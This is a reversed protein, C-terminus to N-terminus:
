GGFVGNLVIGLAVIQPVAVLPIFLSIKWSRTTDKVAMIETYDNAAGAMLFTFANGPAAARTLLDAALPTSGESCVEIVTAAVLTLGLGALTPGFLSEYGFEAGFARVASALIVGLLLWRLVPRSDRFASKGIFVGTARNLRIASLATLVSAAADPAPPRTNPNPPLISLKELRIFVLGTFFAVAMSLFIFAVTWWFGVLTVLVFTLSLSNWPSALLFAAVQGMSAGREYLKMGLLVIGHNCVDFLVGAFVARFIGRAATGNGLLSSVAERPVVSLFGISIVGMVVGPFVTNTIERVSSAIDAFRGSAPTFFGAAYFFVVTALSVWFLYDFSGSQHCPGGQSHEREM